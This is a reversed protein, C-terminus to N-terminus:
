GYSHCLGNVHTSCGADDVADDREKCVGLAVSVASSWMPTRNTDFNHESNGPLDAFKTAPLQLSVLSLVRCALHVAATVEDDRFQLLRLNRVTARWGELCQSENTVGPGTIHSCLTVALNLDAGARAAAILQAMIRFSGARNASDEGGDSLAVAPLSMCRALDIFSTSMAANTLKWESQMELFEFTTTTCAALAHKGGGIDVGLFAGMVDRAAQLCTALATPSAGAPAGASSQRVSALSQCLATVLPRAEGGGGVACGGALLVMQPDVRTAMRTLLKKTLSCATGPPFDVEPVAPAPSASATSILVHDAWTYFKGAKFRTRLAHLVNPDDIHELDELADPIDMGTANKPHVDSGSATFQGGHPCNVADPMRLRVRGGDLQHVVEAEAWGDVAHRV